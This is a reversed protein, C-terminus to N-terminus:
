AFVLAETILDKIMGRLLLMVAAAAAKITLSVIKRWDPKRFKVDGTTAASGSFAECVDNKVGSILKKLFSV